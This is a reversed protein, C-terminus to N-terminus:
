TNPTAGLPGPNSDKRACAKLAVVRARACPLGYLQGIATIHARANTLFRAKAAQEVYAALDRSELRNSANLLVLDIQATTLKHQKSFTNHTRIETSRNLPRTLKTSIHYLGFDLIPWPNRM